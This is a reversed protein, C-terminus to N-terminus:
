EHVAVNAWGPFMGGTTFSNQSPINAAQNSATDFIDCGGLLASCGVLKGDSTVSISTLGPCPLGGFLGGGSSQGPFATGFLSSLLNTIFNGQSSSGQTGGPQGIVAQLLGMIMSVASNASTGGQGTGMGGFAQQLQSMFQQSTLGMASFLSGMNALQFQNVTMTPNAPDIEVVSGDFFNGVFVADHVTTGNGPRFTACVPGAGVYPIYSVANGIRTDIVAVEGSLLCTVYIQGLNDACIGIPFALSGSMGIDITEVIPDQGSGVLMTDIVSVTDSLCNAVYVKTGYATASFAGLGNVGSPVAIMGLLMYYDLDMVGGVAGQATVYKTTILSPAFKAGSVTVVDFPRVVYGVIPDLISALFNQTHSGSNLDHTMVIGPTAAAPDIEVLKQDFTTAVVRAPTAGLAPQYGIGTTGPLAVWSKWQGTYLNFVEVGGNIADSIYADAQVTVTPMNPQNPNTTTPTGTGPNVTSASTSSSRESGGGCGVVMMAVALLALTLKWGNM